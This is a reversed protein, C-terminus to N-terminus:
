VEMMVDQVAESLKAKQTEGLIFQVDVVAGSPLDDFHEMIYRHAVEMTRGHRWRNPDYQALCDELKVVIVYGAQMEGATGYGARALLYRDQECGPNLRVALVPIFTGADRIEFTKAQM